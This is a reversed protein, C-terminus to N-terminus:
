LFLKWQIMLMDDSLNMLDGLSYLTTTTTTTTIPEHAAANKATSGTESSSDGLDTVMRGEVLLRLEHLLAQRERSAEWALNAARKAVLAAHRIYARVKRLEDWKQRMSSPNYAPLPPGYCEQATNDPDSAAWPFSVRRWWSSEVWRSACYTGEGRQQQVVTTVNLLHESGSWASVAEEFRLLADDAAQLSQALEEGSTALSAMIDHRPNLVLSLTLNVAWTDWVRTTDKRLPPYAWGYMYNQIYTFRRRKKQQQQSQEQGGREGEEHATMNNDKSRIFSSPTTTTRISRYRERAAADKGGGPRTRHGPWPWLWTWARTWARGSGDRESPDIMAQGLGDLLLRTTTTDWNGEYWWAYSVALAVVQLRRSENRPTAYTEM